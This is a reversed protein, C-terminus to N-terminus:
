FFEELWDIEGPKLSKEGELAKKLVNVADSTTKQTTDIEYVKDIGHKYVAEWLIIGLAEAELNDQLKKESYGRKRLRKELVEPNTRLVVVQSIMETPLLHSLLGDILVPRDERAIVRKIDECLDEPDVVRTGDPDLEYAGSEEIIEDLSILKAGLEKVLYQAFDSKGTGPTGSVAIVNNKQM